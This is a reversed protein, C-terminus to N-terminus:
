PNGRAADREAQVDRARDQLAHLRERLRAIEADRRALVIAVRRILTPYVDEPEEFGGTLWGHVIRKAEQLTRERHARMRLRRECSWVLRLNAM